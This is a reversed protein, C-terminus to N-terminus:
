PNTGGDGRAMSAPCDPRASFVFWGLEDAWAEGQWPWVRYGRKAKKLDRLRKVNDGYDLVGTAAAQEYMRTELSLLDLRTIEIGQLMSALQQRADEVRGVIRRGEADKRADRQETVLEAALQGARGTLAKARQLEEDASAIAAVAEDYREEHRFPRLLYAPIKTPAGDRFAAVDAFAEAPTVSLADLEERIPTYKAVFDDMESGADTFKCMVFYSYARLLDVEPQYQDAFFPSEHNFLMALAGNTDNGRFHAWAREFQADLWFDSTRDIQAYSAIAQGYNGSSYYARAVNLTAVQTWTDERKAQVGMAQATLMPAVADKHRGQASLAIGRLLEVDEFGPAANDGMMLIAVAPGFSEQQLNYKAAIVALENRTEGTIGPETLAAVNTGLAKALLGAEHAQEVVPLARAAVGTNHQADLLLGRGWAGLAALPLGGKEYLDGLHGWAEGHLEARGPDDIIATLEAAAANRDGSAMAKAWGTFAQARVDDTMPPPPEPEPPPEPAPKRALATAVLLLWPSM